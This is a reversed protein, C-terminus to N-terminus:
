ENSDRETILNQSHILENSNEKVFKAYSAIEQFSVNLEEIVSTINVISDSTETSESLTQAIATEVTHMERALNSILTQSEFIKDIVLNQLSVMKEFDDKTANLMSLNQSVINEIATISSLSDTTNLNVKTVISNIYDASKSSQEALKKIESAVVVFGKGAEGAKAAEISANLSLLNTQESVDNIIKLANSIETTSASLSSFHMKSTTSADNIENINHVLNVINDKNISTITSLENTLESIESSKKSTDEINQLISSAATSSKLATQAMSEARLAIDASSESIEQVAYTSQTINEYLHEVTNNTKTANEMTHDLIHQIQETQSVSSNFIKNAKSSFAVFLAGLALIELSYYVISSVASSTDYFLEFDSNLFSTLITAVVLTPIKFIVLRKVFSADLYLAAVGLSLAWLLAAYVWSSMYICVTLLEICIVAVNRFNSNDKANKYYLGPIFCFILSLVILYDKPNLILGGRLICLYIINAMLLFSGIKFAKLLLNDSEKTSSNIISNASM